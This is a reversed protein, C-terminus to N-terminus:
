TEKRKSKINKNLEKNLIDDLSNRKLMAVTANRVELFTKRIGCNEEDACELCPEYYNHTVCPIAAIAGDFLRVVDALSVEKPDKRLFYGGGKGAKSGLIGAKRLDLLITELFKQPIHHHRAIEKILVYGEGYRAALFM